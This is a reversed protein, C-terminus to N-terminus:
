QQRSSFDKINLYEVGAAEACLGDRDDRDGIYLVEDAKLNLSKLINKLGSPNPKMCKILEDDSYFTHDPTFDVAAIKENVPYDSYVIMQVGQKQHQIISKILNKRQFIKILRLPKEFLWFHLLKEVASVPLEYKTAIRTLQQRHFNKENAAFLEERIQRYNQILMIESIRWPHVIYYALIMLAMCIRLPLQYYLTGDFDLIWAKYNSLNKKILHM